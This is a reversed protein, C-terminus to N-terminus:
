LPKYSCDFLVDINEINNNVIIMLRIFSENCTLSLSFSVIVKKNDSSLEETTFKSEGILQDSHFEISNFRTCIACSRKLLDVQQQSVQFSFCLKYNGKRLILEDDFPNLAIPDGRKLETSFRVSRKKGNRLSNDGEVVTGCGKQNM